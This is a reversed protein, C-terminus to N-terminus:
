QKNFQAELHERWGDGLPAPAAGRPASRVSSSAAKARAAAEAVAPVAKAAERQALIPATNPNLKIAQEYARQLLATTIPKGRSVEAKVIVEIEQLVDALFEPATAEFDQIVKTQEAQAAAAREAQLQQRVMAQIQEQGIGQPQAVPKGELHSALLGIAADDTGLHQRIMEAVVAAKQAQSGGTLAAYQGVLWGVAEQPPKGSARLVHEYPALTKTWTEHSRRAEASEQLAASVERERRVIAEQVIRPAKVFEEREQPKLSQPPKLPEPAPPAAQPTPAGIPAAAVVATAEVPKAAAFKGDPGRAPGAQPEVAEPTEVPAAQAAEVRELSEELAGKWGQEPEQEQEVGAPM